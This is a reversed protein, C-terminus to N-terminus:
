EKGSGLQFLFLEGSVKRRWQFLQILFAIIASLLCCGGLIHFPIIYTLCSTSQPDGEPYIIM